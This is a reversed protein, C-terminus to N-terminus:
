PLHEQVCLHFLAYQSLLTLPTQLSFHMYGGNPLSLGFSETCISDQLELMVVIAVRM